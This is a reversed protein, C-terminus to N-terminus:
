SALGRHGVSAELGTLGFRRTTNVKEERRLEILKRRQRFIYWSRDAAGVGRARASWLGAPCRSNAFPTLTLWWGKRWGRLGTHAAFAESMRVEMRGLDGADWRPLCRGLTRGRGSGEKSLWVVEVAWRARSAFSIRGM